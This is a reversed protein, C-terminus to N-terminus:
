QGMEAKEKAIREEEAKAAAEATAAAKRYIGTLYKNTFAEPGATFLNDRTVINYVKQQYSSDMMQNQFDEFSKTYYRDRVLVDYLQQLEPM